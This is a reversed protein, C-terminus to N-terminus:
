SLNFWFLKFQVQKSKEDVKTEPSPLSVFTCIAPKESGSHEVSWDDAKLDTSTHLVQRITNDLVKVYFEVHIDTHSCACAISGSRSRRTQTLCVSFLSLALWQMKQARPERRALKWIKGDDRWQQARMQHLTLEFVCSLMQRKRAKILLSEVRSVVSMQCRVDCGSLILLIWNFIIHYYSSSYKPLNLLLSVFPHPPIKWWRRRVELQKSVQTLLCLLITHCLVITYSKSGVKYWSRM